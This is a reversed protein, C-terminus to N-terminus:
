DGVKATRGGVLVLVSRKWKKEHDGSGLKMERARGQDTIKWRPHM